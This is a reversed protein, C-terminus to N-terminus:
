LPLEDYEPQIIRSYINLGFSKDIFPLIIQFANGGIVCFIDFETEAFLVLSM